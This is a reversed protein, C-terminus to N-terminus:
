ALRELSDAAGNEPAAVRRRAFDWPGTVRAKTDKRM